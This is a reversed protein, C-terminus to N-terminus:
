VHYTQLINWHFYTSYSIYKEKLNMMSHSLSSSSLNEHMNWDFLNSPTKIKKIYAHNCLTSLNIKFGQFMASEVIVMPVSLQLAGYEHLLLVPSAQLVKWWRLLSICHLGDLLGTPGKKCACQRNPIVRTLSSAATVITRTHRLLRVLQHFDVLRLFRVSCRGRM